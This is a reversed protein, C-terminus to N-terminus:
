RVLKKNFGRKNVLSLTQINMSGGYSDTFCKGILIYAARDGTVPLNPEACIDANPDAIRGCVHRYSQM